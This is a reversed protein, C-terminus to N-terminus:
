HHSHSDDLQSRVFDNYANRFQLAADQWEQSQGSWDGGGVNAIITDAWGLLDNNPASM